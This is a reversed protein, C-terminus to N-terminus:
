SVNLYTKHRQHENSATRAARPLAHSADRNVCCQGRWWTDEIHLLDFCVAPQVDRILVSIAPSYRLFRALARNQSMGALRTRAM